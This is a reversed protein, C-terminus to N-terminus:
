LYRVLLSFFADALYLFVMSTTRPEPVLHQACTKNALGGRVLILENSDFTQGAFRSEDNRGIM